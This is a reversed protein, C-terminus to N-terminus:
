AFICPPARLARIKVIDASHYKAMADYDRAHFNKIVIEGSVVPNICTALIPFFHPKLSDHLSDSKSILYEEDEICLSSDGDHKTNRDIDDNDDHCHEAATCIAGNHHHHPIYPVTLLMFVALLM